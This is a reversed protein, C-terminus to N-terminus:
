IFLLVNCPISFLIRFAPGRCAKTYIRGQIGLKQSVAALDKVDFERGSRSSTDINTQMTVIM